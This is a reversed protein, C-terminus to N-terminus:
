PEKNKELHFHCALIENKLKKKMIERKNYNDAPLVCFLM